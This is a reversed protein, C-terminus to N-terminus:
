AGTGYDRHVVDALSAYPMSPYRRRMDSPDFSMNETDMAVSAQIQSALTANVPRMLVGM